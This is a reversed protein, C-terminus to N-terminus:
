IAGKSCLRGNQTPYWELQGTVYWDESGVATPAYFLGWPDYRQKLAYVRAYNAGYFAQQWDPEKIDAESMYAGAGPSVDRWPQLAETLREIADAVDGPTADTGWSAGLMAHCLTARWAPNVANRQDVSPNAAARVNYGVMMGTSLVAARIASTQASLTSANAWNSRPFLRSGTHYTWSGVVETSAPFTALFAPLLSPYTTYTANDVSIGLTALQAFYPGTFARLQACTTNTAWLPNVALTCTTANACSITYYTYMGADAYTPYTAFFVDIGSWFASSSVNAGTSFSYTLTSVPAKPYVRIILSTVIGYTSGGGGRLAWFLDPNNNEDVSVFTGDPLVVELALVQDAAMGYKSSLPSHGGGAIYGGGLGVTRAIGAVVHLDLNDAFEYVQLAQVGSGIKLAPGSHGGSTYSPIYRIDNLHHTWVSLAGAGTNKANFDHGKNKVTLRLNRNRAYNVALQINAVSTVNVIYSPYGGLTCNAGKPANSPPLCTVGEFLPWDIDTPSEAQFQPKNWNATVSDCTAADYQPWGQYCVAAAPVSRILSGGLLLNFQSWESNSPWAEDAPLLRCIAASRNTTATLNGFDFLSADTVNIRTLHSLVASTLQATEFPFYDEDLDTSDAGVTEVAPSLTAGTADFTGGDQISWAIVSHRLPLMGVLFLSKLLAGM